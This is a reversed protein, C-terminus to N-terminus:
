KHIEYRHQLYQAMTDFQIDECDIEDNPECDYCTYSTMLNHSSNLHCDRLFASSFDQNCIFCKTLGRAQYDNYVENILDKFREPLLWHTIPKLTEYHTFINNLINKKSDMSLNSIDSVCLSAFKPTNNNM